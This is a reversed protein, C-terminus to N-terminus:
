TSCVGKGGIWGALAASEGACVVVLPLVPVAEPMIDDGPCCLAGTMAVAVGHEPLPSAANTQYKVRFSLREGVELHLPRLPLIVDCSEPCLTFKRNRQARTEKIFLAVNFLPLCIQTKEKEKSLRPKRKPYLIERQCLVLSIELFDGPPTIHNPLIHTYEM